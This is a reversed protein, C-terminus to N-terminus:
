PKSIQKTNATSAGAQEKALQVSGPGVSLTLCATKSCKLRSYECPMARSCHTSAQETTADSPPKQEDSSRAETTHLSPRTTPGAIVGCM